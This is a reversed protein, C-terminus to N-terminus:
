TILFTWYPVGINKVLVFVQQWHVLEVWKMEEFDTKKLVIHINGNWRQNYKGPTRHHEEALIKHM